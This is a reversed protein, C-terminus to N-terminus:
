MYAASDNRLWVHLFLVHKVSIRCQSPKKLGYPYVAFHLNLSIKIM